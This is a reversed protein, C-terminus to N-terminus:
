IRVSANELISRKRTVEIKNENFPQTEASLMTRNAMFLSIPPDAQLLSARIELVGRGEQDMSNSPHPFNRTIVSDADNKDGLAILDIHMESVVVHMAEESIFERTVQKFLSNCFRVMTQCCLLFGVQKRNYSAMSDFLNFAHCTKKIEDEVEEEEMLLKNMIVDASSRPVIEYSPELISERQFAKSRRLKLVDNEEEQSVIAPKHGSM